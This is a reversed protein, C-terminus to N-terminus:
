KDWDASNKLIIKVNAGIIGVSKEINSLRANIHKLHNTKIENLETQLPKLESELLDKIIKIDQKDM